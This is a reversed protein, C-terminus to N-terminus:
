LSRCDLQKSLLHQLKTVPLTSFPFAGFEHEATTMENHNWAPTPVPGASIASCLLELESPWLPILECASSCTEGSESAHHRVAHRSWPNSDFYVAFRCLMLSYSRHASGPDAKCKEAGALGAVRQGDCDIHHGHAPETAAEGEGHSQSTMTLKRKQRICKELKAFATEDRRNAPAMQAMVTTCPLQSLLKLAPQATNCASMVAFFSCARSSFTVSAMFKAAVRTLRKQFQLWWASGKHVQVTPCAIIMCHM